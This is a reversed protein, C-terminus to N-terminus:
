AGVGILPAAAYEVAPERLIRPSPKISNGIIASMVLQLTYWQKNGPSRPYAKPLIVNICSLDRVETHRYQLKYQRDSTASECHLALRIEKNGSTLILDTKGVADETTNLVCSDFAKAEALMAWVHLSDIMSPYFNRYLKAKIGQKQIDPKPRIWDDWRDWCHRMYDGQTFLERKEILLRFFEEAAPTPTIGAQDGYSGRKALERSSWNIPNQSIYRVITDSPIHILTIGSM